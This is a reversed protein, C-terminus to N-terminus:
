NNLREGLIVQTYIEEIRDTINSLDFKETAKRRGNLGLNRSIEKNTLLYKMKESWINIDNPPILYGTTGDEIIEHLPRINSAIVPKCEAFAEIIVRGFGELLSPLLLATCKSLLEHKAAESM